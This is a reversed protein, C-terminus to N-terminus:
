PKKGSVRYRANNTKMSRHLVTKITVVGDATPPALYFKLDDVHFSFANVAAAGRVLSELEARFKDVALGYKREVYRLLAHDSIYVKTM